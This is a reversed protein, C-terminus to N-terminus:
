VPTNQFDEAWAEETSHAAEAAEMAKEAVAEAAVGREAEAVEMNEPSAGSM